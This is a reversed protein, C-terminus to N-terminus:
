NRDSEVRKYKKGGITVTESDRIGDGPDFTGGGVGGMNGYPNHFWPGTQMPTLGNPGYQWHPYMQNLIGLSNKELARGKKLAYAKDTASQTINELSREKNFQRQAMKDSLMVAMQTNKWNADNEIAANQNNTQVRQQADYNAKQQGLQNAADVLTALSANRRGSDVGANGYSRQLMPYAM